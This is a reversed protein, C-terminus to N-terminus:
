EDRERASVPGTEKKKGKESQKKRESRGAEQSRRRKHKGILMGKRKGSEELWLSIVCGHYKKKRKQEVDL